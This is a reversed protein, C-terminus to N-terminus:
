IRIVVIAPVIAVPVIVVVQQDRNYYKAVTRSQQNRLFSHQNFENKPGGNAQAWLCINLVFRLHFNLEFLTRLAVPKGAGAGVGALAVPRHM